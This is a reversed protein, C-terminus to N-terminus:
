SGVKKIIIQNNTYLKINTKRTNHYGVKNRLKPDGYSGTVVEARDLYSILSHYIGGDLVGVQRAMRMMEQFFDKESFEKKVELKCFVEKLFNLRHLAPLKAHFNSHYMRSFGEARKFWVREDTVANRLSVQSRWVHFPLFSLRKNYRWRNMVSFEQTRVSSAEPTKDLFLECESLPALDDHVLDSEIIYIFELFESNFLGVNDLVWKIASWYGYNKESVCLTSGCPLETFHDQYTSNNDFTVLRNSLNLESLKQALNESVKIATDRRGTDRSCTVLLFLTRDPIKYGMDSAGNM